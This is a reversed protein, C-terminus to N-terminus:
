IAQATEYFKSEWCFLIFINLGRSKLLLELESQCTICLLSELPLNYFFSPITKCQVSYCYMGYLRDEVGMSCV